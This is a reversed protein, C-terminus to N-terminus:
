YSKITNKLEIINVCDPCPEYDDFGDTYDGIGSCYHLENDVTEYKPNSIKTAADLGHLEIFKNAKMIM